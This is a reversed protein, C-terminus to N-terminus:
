ILDADILALESLARARKSQAMDSHDFCTHRYGGSSTPFGCSSERKCGPEDCVIAVSEPTECRPCVTWVAAYKPVNAKEFDSEVGIFRCNLCLWQPLNTRLTM